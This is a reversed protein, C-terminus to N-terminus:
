PSKNLRRPLRLGTQIASACPSRKAEPTFKRRSKDQTPHNQECDKLVTPRDIALFDPLFAALFDATRRLFFVLGAAFFDASLFLLFALLFVLFFALDAVLDAAFGARLVLALALFFARFFVLLGAFVGVM